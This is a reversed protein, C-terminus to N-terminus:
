SECKKEEKYRERGEEMAFTLSAELDMGLQIAIMYLIFLLKGLVIKKKERLLGATFRYMPPAETLLDCMEGVATTLKLLTLEITSSTEHTDSVEKCFQEVRAQAGLLFTSTGLCQPCTVDIASSTYFAPLAELTKFVGEPTQALLIRGCHRCSLYKMEKEEWIQQIAQRLEFEGVRGDTLLQM